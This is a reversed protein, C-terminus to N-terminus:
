LLPHNSTQHAPLSQLSPQAVVAGGEDWTMIYESETM